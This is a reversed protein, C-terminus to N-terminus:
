RLRNIMSMMAEARIYDGKKKYDAYRNVMSNIIIKLFLTESINNMVITKILMWGFFWFAIAILGNAYGSVSWVQYFTYICFAYFILVLKTYVPPTIADQHGVGYDVNALLRGITVTTNQFRSIFSMIASLVFLVLFQSDTM